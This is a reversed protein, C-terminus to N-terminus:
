ESEMINAMEIGRLSCCYGENNHMPHFYVTIKDSMLRPLLIGHLKGDKPYGMMEELALYGKKFKAPLMIADPFMDFEKVYALVLEGLALDLDSLLDSTWTQTRWNDKVVAKPVIIDIEM